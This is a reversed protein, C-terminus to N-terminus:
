LPLDPNKKWIKVYLRVATKYVSRWFKPDRVIRIRKQYICMFRMLDMKTLGLDMASFFIGAVDKVQFHKPIHNRIQSRHLDIVHLECRGQALVDPKLLFHCIYCDRHNVGSSHMRGIADALAAIIQHKVKLSPPNTKWDKCFDELSVYGVLDETVLFSELNAPPNGRVAFACPVMTRVGIQPLLQLALYENVSGVVPEKFQLVNKLIEGWGVPGHRKIFYSKGGLTFRITARNKVARFVEGEVTFAHHFLEDGHGWAKSFTDNLYERENM